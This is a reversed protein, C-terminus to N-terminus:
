ARLDASRRNAEDVHRQHEDRMAREIASRAALASAFRRIRGHHDELPGGEPWQSVWPFRQAAAKTAPLEFVTEGQPGNLVRGGGDDAVHWGRWDGQQKTVAFLTVIEPGIERSADLHIEARERDLFRAAEDLPKRQYLGGNGLREGLYVTVNDSRTAVKIAYFVPGLQKPTETM